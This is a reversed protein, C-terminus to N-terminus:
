KFLKLQEEDPELNNSYLDNLEPRLVTMNYLMMLGCSAHLLHHLNSEPDIVEGKNHANIHRLVADLLRSHKFGKRWNHADYKTAGFTLVSAVGELWLPDLLSMQPKGSDHKTGGTVLATTPGEITGLVGAFELQAGISGMERAVKRFEEM